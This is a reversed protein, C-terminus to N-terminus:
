DGAAAAVPTRGEVSNIPRQVGRAIRQEVYREVDHRRFLVRRTTDRMFPVGDRVALFRMRPVNVGLMRAAAGISLLTEQM